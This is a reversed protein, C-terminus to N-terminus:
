APLPFSAPDLLAWSGGTSVEGPLFTAPPDAGIVGELLRGPSVRVVADPLARAVEGARLESAVARCRIGHGLRLHQTGVAVLDHVVVAEDLEAAAQAAGQAAAEIRLNTLAPTPGAQDELWRSTLAARAAAGATPATAAPAAGGAALSDAAVLDLPRAPRGDAGFPAPQLGAPLDPEDRLRAARGHGGPAPAVDRPRIAGLLKATATPTLLVPAARYGGASGGPATAPRRPPRRALRLAAEAALGPWDIATGEPAYRAVTFGEGEAYAVCLGAHGRLFSRVVGCSSVYVGFTRLEHWAASAAPGLGGVEPVGAGEGPGPAAATGGRAPAALAQEPAAAGACRHGAAPAGPLVALALEAAARLASPDMGDCRVYAQRGRSAASVFPRLEQRWRGPQAADHPRARSRQGALYLQLCTGGGAEAALGRATRVLDAVMAESAM